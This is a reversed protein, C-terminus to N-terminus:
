FLGDLYFYFRGGSGDRLPWAADLRVLGDLFSVGAGLSWLASGRDWDERPGAWGLDSFVALRALPGHTAMEARTLWFSEGHLASGAYGRLSNAGGLFFTKQEPVAGTIVGAGFEAALGLSGFLTHRASVRAFLRQYTFDGQTAEARIAGNVGTSGSRNAAEWALDGALGLITGRDAAIVTPLTDDTLPAWLYFNTEREVPGHREGFARLGGRIRKGQRTAILELGSADYFHAHGNRLLLNSVSAGLSLPDGFDDTHALRRYANLTFRREGRAHHISLGGRIQRDAIGLRLRPAIGSTSGLAFRTSIGASVGEVRNYRLNRDAFGYALGGAYFRRRPMLSALDRRIDALEEESFAVGSPGLTEGTLLSSTRLSDLPPVLVEVKETTGDRDEWTGSHVIWGLSDGADPIRTEDSNVLYDGVSWEVAFPARILGGARVEGQVGFRRPLWWELEQLSYEITVFEIEVQVPHLFGPVDEGEDVALDFAVSPRYHARVLAGTRADFWLSGALLEFQARRPEVLVEILRVDRAEGPLTVRLTDGSRYRYHLAATDALPHLAFRNGFALRDHGPRYNFVLPSLNEALAGQIRRAEEGTAEDRMRVGISGSGEERGARRWAVEGRDGLVPVEDVAGLWQITRGADADWRVRAVRESQFLARERRFRAAALGLYIRERLLGEYSSIGSGERARADQAREILVRAGPDRYTDIPITDPTLLAVLLLGISM